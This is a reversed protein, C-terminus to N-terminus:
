RAEEDKSVFIGRDDLLRNVKVELVHIQWGIAHAVLLVIGTLPEGSYIAMGAFGLASIIFLTRTKM